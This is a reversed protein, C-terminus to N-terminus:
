VKGIGAMGAAYDRVRDWDYERYLQMKEAEMSGEAHLALVANYGGFDSTTIDQILNIIQLREKGSTGKKGKLYKEILPGTEESQLDEVAPGTVIIGGALDQVYSLAQHFDAAFHHKAINVTAPDPIVMDFDTKRARM